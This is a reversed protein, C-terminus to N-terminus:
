SATRTAAFAGPWGGHEEIVEDIRTMLTITEGLAAVIYRYHEIDDTSLTRGKRDKLWKQCVQYGGIHFNWVEPPVPAFSQTPNIHVARRKEDYTPKVVENDGKGSFTAERKVKAEMLHLAVLQEGLPALADFLARSGPLPIRPFDRMLFDVYRSRYGTCFLVGYIYAFVQEPKASEKGQKPFAVVFRPELNPAVLGSEEGEFVDEALWLPFLNNGGRRYMNFETIHRTAFVLDYDTEGVVQGARGVTLGVNRGALMHRMVEPRPMCQFGRSNGTYYTWRRDFPRYLISAIHKKSPGSHRLDSQAMAVKWDRADPGLDYHERAEEPKMAAFDRVSKWVEAESWHITLADRATVIGVSNVPMIDTLKWFAMYEAELNSDRPAFLLFPRTPALPKWATKRADQKSLVAYKSERAGSLESHEVRVKKTKAQRELLAIAVGQMIDFVNEDKTGDPATEKKKANGHLDLFLSHPFSEMLSERMGRFTPNDLYGHNTIFGVVGMGTADIRWQALRIFKVYDDNLWKPNKEGLPKGGLHFYNARSQHNGGRMLAHIWDGNNASHGSYPPNGIVVTIPVGRKARNADNAEHAMFEDVDADFFEQAPELANTLFVNLRKGSKFEYGLDRLYLGLKMHCVAYPAPLLEFGYLRPLLHDDVYENWRRVLADEPLNKEKLWETLMTDHIIRIVFKLFTGTGCAPDLIRVFPGAPNTGEPVKFGNRAAVEAWTSTDALGLPCQFDRILLEHVSRVIYSVVPDPTYYVGRMERVRADYARLFGEYFHIVPDGVRSGFEDMIRHIDEPALSEFLEVLRALGVEEIDIRGGGKRSLGFCQKFLDRLFPNTEPISDAVSRLDRLSFPHHPKAFRATFLGYTMTQAYYDAFSDETLDHVLVKKFTDFLHRLPDTPVDSMIDLVELVRARVDRAFLAMEEALARADHISKRKSGVFAARWRDRWEKQSAATEPWRLCELYRAIHALHTEKGSWTFERLVATYGNEPQTFHAFTVGRSDGDGHTNIFLLDHMKWTSREPAAARKKEVFAALIRRLVTVPLRKPEFEVYFVGWPQNAALPRLQLISRVRAAFRPPIGVEEPTYEFTLDEPAASADLDVPWHLEDALFRVLSDFDRIRIPNSKPPM